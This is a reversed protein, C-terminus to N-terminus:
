LPLCIPDTPKDMSLTPQALATLFSAIYQDMQFDSAQELCHNRMAMRDNISLQVYHALADLVEKANSALYGTKHHV